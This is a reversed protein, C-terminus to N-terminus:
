IRNPNMKPNKPSFNCDGKKVRRVSRDRIRIEIMKIKYRQPSNCCLSSVQGTQLSGFRSAIIIPNRMPMLM